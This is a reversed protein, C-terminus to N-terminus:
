KKNELKELILEIKKELEQYTLRNETIYVLFFRLTHQSQILSDALHNKRKRYIERVRRKIQNRNVAKRILKKPVGIAIQLSPTDSEELLWYIRFPYITFYRRSHFLAEIIKRSRLRDRKHLSGSSM